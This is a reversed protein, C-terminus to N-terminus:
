IERMPNLIPNGRNRLFTTSQLRERWHTIPVWNHAPAVSREVFVNPVNKQMLSQSLTATSSLYYIYLRAEPRSRAWQAWATDDGRNYTCDFGWCEQILNTSQDRGLALQRMPWGGGSHCALIINGLRPSQSAGRYPGYARLAAIVQNLYADFGGLKTLRGTQSRPGVTPAILIVNKQSENVGERLPWYPSRQRNWYGDITLDPHKFGHLYLILDLTSHPSYHEPIFIGTMPQALRKNRRDVINLDIEVYLTSAPPSTERRILNPAAHTLPSVPLRGGDPTIALGPPPSAGAAILAAETRAGVIGDAALGSRQQFSRIASRTQRGGVGDEALRSGMIQNLSRQVWRVYERSNRNVEAEL